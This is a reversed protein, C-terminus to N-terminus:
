EPLLPVIMESELEERSLFPYLDELPSSYITGDPRTKIASKPILEQFEPMIIEAFIPGTTGIVENVFNDLNLPTAISKFSFGFAEIVKKFDPFTVGSKPGCAGANGASKYIANHTHKITLYGNNNLLFVKINLNNEKMTQLEQLNMMFSGEGVILVVDRKSDALCAGIAGPLGFGMEGLGTSTILRQGPKLKIAAHTCTLATGMDTIITHNSTLHKSLNEIFWYSNIGEKNPDEPPTAMPYKKKWHNIKERWASWSTDIDEALTKDLAELFKAVDGEVPVDINFKFKNLEVPDIDVIVKKSGRSFTADNFGRQPLAVRTGLTILLDCNQLALNGFRQGYTGARGAFNPDEDTLIDAAPWTVLSPMNLKSQVRRFVDIGKAIRVGHGLWFLPRQSKKILEVTKKAAAMYDIEPKVDPTYGILTDPDIQTHQLNQPVEIWVPGPRGSYALHFAKELMWKVQKPDTLCYGFKTVTKTIDVMDLGQVGKGRMENPPDVYELNEQGALIFLPMSDLHADALGILTNSAGPGGTVMMVAPNGTIRMRTLAAMIGAQEQHPCLYDIGLQEFSEILRISGSGTVAFTMDVGKNKFFQAIYDTVKM